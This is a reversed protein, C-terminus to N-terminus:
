WAQAGKFKFQLNITGLSKRFGESRGSKKSQYKWLGILLSQQQLWKISKNTTKRASAFPACNENWEDKLSLRGFMKSYCIRWYQRMHEEETLM